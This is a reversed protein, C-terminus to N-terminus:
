REAHVFLLLTSPRLVRPHFERTLVPDAQAADALEMTSVSSSAETALLEFIGMDSAVKAM